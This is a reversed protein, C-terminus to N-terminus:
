KQNIELSLLSNVRKIIMLGTIFVNGSLSYIVGSLVLLIIENTKDFPYAYILLFFLSIISVLILYSVNTYLQKILRKRKEPNKSGEQKVISLIMLLINFLLPIFITHAIALMNVYEKPISIKFFCLVIAIILPVLYFLFFDKKLPRGKGDALTKYHEKFISLVNIKKMARM